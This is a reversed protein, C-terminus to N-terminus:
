FIISNYGQPIDALVLQQDFQETMRTIIVGPAIVNVNVGRPSLSYLIYEWYM